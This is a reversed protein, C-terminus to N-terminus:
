DDLKCIVCCYYAQNGIIVLCGVPLVHPGQSHPELIIVEREIDVFYLLQDHVEPFLLPLVGRDVDVTDCHLLHLAELEEAYM